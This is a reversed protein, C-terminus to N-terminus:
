SPHLCKESGPLPFPFSMISDNPYQGPQCLYWFRLASHLYCLQIETRIRDSGFHTIEALGRLRMSNWKRGSNRDILSSNLISMCNKFSCSWGINLPFLKESTLSSLLRFGPQEWELSDWVERCPGWQWWCWGLVGPDSFDLQHSCTGQPHLTWSWLVSM